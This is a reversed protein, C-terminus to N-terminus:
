AIEYSGNWLFRDSNTWTFPQTANVDLATGAGGQYQIPAKYNFGARAGNVTANYWASGNDLLNATMLIADAHSATFPMSIYWEGSGFTTTSGIVINGRVFCTKGVVKYWGELTGDGISPNVSAATWSPTYSIWAGEYPTVYSATTANTAWSSTGFLSGTLSGSAGTFTIAGNSLQISASSSGSIIKISGNSVYIDRWAATASGLDYSSTNDTYPGAPIINGSIILNQNLTNVYSATSALTSFSAYSASTSSSAYSASEISSDGFPGWINSATVFSATDAWSATGYLSGSFASSSLPLSFYFETGTNDINSLSSIPGFYIRNGVYLNSWMATVSGLNYSSVSSAYPSGPLLHGYVTTGGSILLQDEPDIVIDNGLDYISGGDITVITSAILSYSSTVGGISAIAYGSEQTPFTLRASATDILEITEPIIQQHNTDLAQIVVYRSSLNHTFEWTSLNTFSATASVALGSGGAGTSNITVSGTGIGVPDITINTGAVIEYVNKAVLNSNLIGEKYWYEISEGSGTILVTLGKYRFIPDIATNAAAITGYPGYRSDANKAVNVNFNDVIEIAM